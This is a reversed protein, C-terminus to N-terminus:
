PSVALCSVGAITNNRATLNGLDKDVTEGRTVCLLLRELQDRGGARCLVIEIRQKRGEIGIQLAGEVAHAVHVVLRQFAFRLPNSVIQIRYQCV